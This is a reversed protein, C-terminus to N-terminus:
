SDGSRVQEFDEADAPLGSGEGNRLRPSEGNGAGAAYGGSYRDDLGSDRLSIASRQSQSLRDSRRNTGSIPPKRTLTKWAAKIGTVVSRTTVQVNQAQKKASGISRDVQKVVEGASQVGDSVDDTLESIELGTLRIAELTPPFERALTDALKEVSRAARALAQVAPILTVLVATLSVAVLLISLGLWFIPDSM